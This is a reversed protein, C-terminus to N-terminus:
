RWSPRSCRRWFSASEDAGHRPPVDETTFSVPAGLSASAAGLTVPRRACRRCAPVLSGFRRHNLLEARNGCRVCTPDLRVVILARQNSARYGHEHEIM